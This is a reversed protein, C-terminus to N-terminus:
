KKKNSLNQVLDLSHSCYYVIARCLTEFDVNLFWSACHQVTAEKFLWILLCVTCQRQRQRDGCLRLCNRVKNETGLPLTEAIDGAISVHCFTCLSCTKFFPSELTWLLEPRTVAHAWHWIQMFMNLEYQYCCCGWLPSDLPHLTPSPPLNQFDPNPLRFIKNLDSSYLTTNLCCRTLTMAEAIGTSRKTGTILTKVQTGRESGTERRREDGMTTRRIRGTTAIGGKGKNM